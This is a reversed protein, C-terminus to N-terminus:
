NAFVMKRSEVRQGDIVLTYVYTGSANFGHKYLVEAVGTKLTIPLRTVEKGTVADAIAIHAEKYFVADHVAVSIMTTEDFPNPSNQLLEVSAYPKTPGEVHVNAMLERSFLSEVGNGDVSGVSVIYNVASAV